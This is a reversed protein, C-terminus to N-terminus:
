WSIVCIWLVSSDSEIKGSSEREAGATKGMNKVLIKRSYFLIIEWKFGIIEEYFHRIGKSENLNSLSLKDLSAM